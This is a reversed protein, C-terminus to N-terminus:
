YELCGYLFFLFLFVLDSSKTKVGADTLFATMDLDVIGGAAVAMTGVALRDQFLEPDIL